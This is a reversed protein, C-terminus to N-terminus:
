AMLPFMSLSQMSPLNSPSVQFLGFDILRVIHPHDLRKLLKIEQMLDDRARSKLHKAPVFKLAVDSATDVRPGTITPLSAPRARYVQGFSGSGLFGVVRYKGEHVVDGVRLRVAQPSATAAM